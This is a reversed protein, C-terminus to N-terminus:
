KLKESIENLYDKSYKEAEARIILEDTAHFKRLDTYLEIAAQMSKICSQASYAPITERLRQVYEPADFEIRRTGKPPKGNKM